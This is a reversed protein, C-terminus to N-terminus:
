GGDNSNRCFLHKVHFLDRTPCIACRLFTTNNDESQLCEPQSASGTVNQCPAFDDNIQLRPKLM